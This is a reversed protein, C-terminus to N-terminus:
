LLRPLALSYVRVGRISIKLTVKFRVFYNCNGQWFTTALIPLTKTQM